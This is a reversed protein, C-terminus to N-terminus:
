TAPALVPCHSHDLYAALSAALLFPYRTFPAARVRAVYIPLASLGIHVPTCSDIEIQVLAVRKVRM